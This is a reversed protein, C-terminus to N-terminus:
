SNNSPNATVAMLGWIMGFRFKTARYINFGASVLLQHLEAQTYCKQHAPDFIQLIWDCIRCILYDKSWDLIILKGNPKLVRKMEALAIQPKDFYHFANASIVVDFSHNIFHLSHVSGEYLEVNAYTQYKSRAITLMKESIDIGTIKQTPNKDLLLREFEGTGCAVDLVTAQPAIEEWNHLFKLTNVIYNRWRVDYIDALKNYQNRVKVENM